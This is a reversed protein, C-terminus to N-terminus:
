DVIGPGFRLATCRLLLIKALASHTLM